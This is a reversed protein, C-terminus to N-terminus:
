GYRRRLYDLSVWMEDFSGDDVEHLMLIGRWHQNGQPGLYAEEHQYFSGAIISTITSGDAKTAYAIQKGQQHGAISSMNTKRLQASATAAARGAVGTVFYHSYAIGDVIVVDLFPHVTWGFEEYMLDDTSILGELKRDNEIARDVRHEHNGLTLILEPNWRKDKNKILRQREEHIPLMLQYMAEYTSDVDEKYTRGEFSKKGVDYSSLSPMDAFDGLNIIVDPKKEAAFMGAWVLHETEVGPKIQCDPIVMHTRPM